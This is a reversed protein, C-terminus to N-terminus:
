KKKGAKVYGAAAQDIGVSFKQVSIPMAVMCVVAAFLLLTHITSVRISM